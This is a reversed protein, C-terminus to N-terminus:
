PLRNRRIDSMMGTLMYSKKRRLLDATHFCCILKLLLFAAKKPLTKTQVFPFFM